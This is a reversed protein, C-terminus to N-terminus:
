IRSGVASCQLGGQRAWRNASGLSAWGIYVRCSGFSGIGQRQCDPLVAMPALGAGTLEGISVPSYMIHGVVREDITAVLSATAAGNSRLQDVIRAEHDQGFALRNVRRIAQIDAPREDRIEISGM